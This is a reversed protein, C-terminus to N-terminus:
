RYTKDLYPMEVAAKFGNGGVAGFRVTPDSMTSQGLLCLVFCLKSIKCVFGRGNENTDFLLHQPFSCFDSFVMGGHVAM